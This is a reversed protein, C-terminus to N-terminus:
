FPLDEEAFDFNGFIPKEEDEETKDFGNLADIVVNNYQKEKYFSRQWHGEFEIIDGDQINNKSMKEAVGKFGMFFFSLYNKYKGDNSQGMHIAIMGKVYLENKQSYKYEINKIEARTLIKFYLKEM